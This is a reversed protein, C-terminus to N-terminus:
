KGTVKEISTYIIDMMNKLEKKNISLPPLIVIVNGLPRIVLGRKKAESIVKIGTKEEPVYPEKTKKSRVLEIGIMFGAQRVDGVHNLEKYEELRKKLYVIKGQM